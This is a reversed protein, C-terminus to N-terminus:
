RTIREVQRLAFFHSEKLFCHGDPDAVVVENGESDTRRREGTYKWISFKAVAHQGRKVSFGMDKWVQFTHIPELQDIGYQPGHGIIGQEALAQKARYIIEENCM